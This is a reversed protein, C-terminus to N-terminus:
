WNINGFPYLGSASPSIISSIHLSISRLNPLVPPGSYSSFPSRIYRLLGISMSIKNNPTIYTQEEIYPKLMNIDIKGEVLATMLARLTASQKNSLGNDLLVKCYKAKLLRDIYFNWKDKTEAETLKKPM